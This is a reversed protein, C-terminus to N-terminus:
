AELETNDKHDFVRLTPQQARIWDYLTEPIPRTDGNCMEASLTTHDIDIISDINLLADQKGNNQIMVWYAM